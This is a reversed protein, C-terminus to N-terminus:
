FASIKILVTKLVTQLPYSSAVSRIKYITEKREAVLTLPNEGRATLETTLSFLLERFFSPLNNEMRHHSASVGM